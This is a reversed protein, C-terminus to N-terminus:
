EKGRRTRLHDLGDLLVQRMRGLSVEELPQYGYQALYSMLAQQSQTGTDNAHNALNRLAKIYLYDRAITKLQEVPCVVEYGSGPLLEELHELTRVYDGRGAPPKPAGETELLLGLLERNFVGVNKLMSQATRAQNKFGSLGALHAKDPPLGEAWRPHYGAGGPYALRIVLILNEVARELGAPPTFPAGAAAAAAIEEAHAPVYDRLQQFPDQEAEEKIGDSLMLFGRLFQAAYADEYDQRNVEPADTWRLLDGRTLILTPIRETYVTLAQQLMDSEVCWKILSTTNLKRGFKERFAPLLERMLPDGCGKVQDLAQNFSTMRQGLQNTRCLTITENLQELAALLQGIAPDQPNAGYYTRLTRASGFSSLEQMGGVLDFLGILHSVDEVKRLPYNSYAACVTHVGIYSLVRSVLLLYMMANRFGGTTELLISDERSVRSLIASLPGGSFDEGERYPIPVLELEPRDGKLATRLYDFAAEAEPTVVCLIESVGPYRSLLWRVPAENTQGGTVTGSGPCAYEERRPGAAPLSSVFLIIKIAM